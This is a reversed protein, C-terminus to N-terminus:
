RGHREALPSKMLKDGSGDTQYCTLAVIRVRNALRLGKLRTSLDEDDDDLHTEGGALASDGISLEAKRREILGLIEEYRYKAPGGTAPNFWLLNDYWDEPDFEYTQFLYEPLAVPLPVQVRLSAMEVESVDRTFRVTKQIYRREIRFYAVQEAARKGKHYAVLHRDQQEWYEKGSAPGPVHQYPALKHKLYTAM